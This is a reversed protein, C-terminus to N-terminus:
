KMAQAMFQEKVSPISNCAMLGLCRLAVIPSFDTSYLRKLLDISVSMPFNGLQRESEYELLHNLSGIDEGGYVAKEIVRLLCEVDRFGLNAGQGALPHVRHIADGIVALRPKVYKIAHSFGLPFSARKGSVSSICPPYQKANYVNSSFLRTAYDQVYKVIASSHHEQWFANNIASVFEEDSMSLLEMAHEHTTSWVLSSRQSTLPLLAIPGTPLFRQWAVHNEIEEHLELTAVVASQNYDWKMKSLLAKQAIFSNVGDAAVLLRTKLEPGDKLNITVPPIATTTDDLAYNRPTICGSIKSEYMVEVQGQLQTNLVDTLSAIIMDNEVIACLDESMNPENFMIMGDSCADWVQMKRVTGFRPIKEWATLNKLFKMNGPSIACVRNSYFNPPSFLIDTSKRQGGELLLIRKGQMYSSKGLACAMAGGIMGGGAIIVDYVREGKGADDSIFQRKESSASIGKTPIRRCLRTQLCKSLESRLTLM